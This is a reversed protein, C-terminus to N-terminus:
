RVSRIGRKIKSKVLYYSAKILSIFLEIFHFTFIIDIKESGCLEARYEACNSKLYAPLLPSFVSLGIIRGPSEYFQSAFPRYSLLKVKTYHILKHAAIVIFRANKLRKTFKQKRKTGINTLDNLQLSFVTFSIELSIRKDVSVRLDIPPLSVTIIILIILLLETLAVM